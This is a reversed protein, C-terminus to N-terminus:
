KISHPHFLSIASSHPLSHDEFTDIFILSPFTLFTLFTLFTIFGGVFSHNEWRQSEQSTPGVTSAYICLVIGQDFIVAIPDFTRHFHSIVVAVPNCEDNFTIFPGLVHIWRTLRVSKSNKKKDIRCAPQCISCSCQIGPLFNNPPPVELFVYNMVKRSLHHIASYVHLAYTWM